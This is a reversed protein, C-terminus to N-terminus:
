ARSSPQFTKLLLIFGLRTTDDKTVPNCLAIDEATPTYCRAM